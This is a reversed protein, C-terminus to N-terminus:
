KNTENEDKNKVENEQKKCCNKYPMFNSYSGRQYYDLINKNINILDQHSKKKLNFILFMYNWLYHDLKIHEDFGQEHSYYKILDPKVLGCIFCINNKNKIFKNKENKQSIYSDTILGCVMQLVLMLDIIAFFNDIWFRPNQYLTPTIYLGEERLYNIIGNSNKITQDCLTFFCDSFKLCDWTPLHYPIYLYVFIIFYYAILYFLMLTLLLHKKPLWFSKIIYMLTDSHMIIEVLLFILFRYNQSVLAILCDALMLLHYLLKGDRIINFIFSFFKPLFPINERMIDYDDFGYIEGDYEPYYYLYDDQYQNYTRYYENKESESLEYYLYNPLKMLLYSLLILVAFISEILSTYFFIKRTTNINERKYLFGYDFKFNDSYEEVVEYDDNTRYLSAFLLINLLIGIIMFVDVYFQYHNFFLDLFPMKRFLDLRRKSHVLQYHYYDVNKFLTEIKASTSSGVLKSYFEEKMEDTLCKCIPSLTVYFKTISNNILIEINPTYDFYFGYAYDFSNELYFDEQANKTLCNGCKICLERFCRYLSVGYDRTSDFINNPKRHYKKKKLDKNKSEIQNLIDSDNPRTLNQLFINILIYTYTGIEFIIFKDNNNDSSNIIDLENDMRSLMDEDFIPNEYSFHSDKEIIIEKYTEILTYALVDFDIERHISELLYDDQKLGLTLVRILVVLKYKLFSLKKRSLGINKCEDILIDPCEDKDKDKDFRDYCEKLGFLGSDNNDKRKRYSINKLIHRAFSLLGTKEIICKQNELSPGNCCKTLCDIIKIILKYYKNIYILHKTDKTFNVLINSLICIFNHSKSNNYQERLYNKMECTNNASLKTLFDIILEYSDFDNEFLNSSYNLIQGTQYKENLKGINEPNQKLTKNIEDNLSDLISKVLSFISEAGPQEIFFNLFESSNVDDLQDLYSNFFKIYLLYEYDNPNIKVDNFQNITLDIFNLDQFYMKNYPTIRFENTGNLRNNKEKITEDKIDDNNNVNNNISNNKINNNINNNKINNDISNNKINNDISNSISNNISNNISNYINNNIINNINYLSIENDIFDDKNKNYRMLHINTWYFFYLENKYNLYDKAYNDKLIDVYSKFFQVSNEKIDDNKINNSDIEKFYKNLYRVYDMREINIENKVYNQFNILSKDYNIKAKIKNWIFSFSEPNYEDNILLKNLLNKRTILSKILKPVSLKLNSHKMKNNLVSLLEAKNGLKKKIEEIESENKKTLFNKEKKDKELKILINFYLQNYLNIITSFTEDENIHLSSLIIHLKPISIGIFENFYRLNINNKNKNCYILDDDLQIKENFRILTETLNKTYRKNIQFDNKYLDSHNYLLNTVIIFIQSLKMYKWVTDQNILNIMDLFVFIIDNLSLISTNKNENCKKKQENTILELIKILSLLDDNTDNNNKIEKVLIHNIVELVPYLLVFYEYNCFSIIIKLSQVYFPIIKKNKDWELYQLLNLSSIVHDLNKIQNFDEQEEFFYVVNLLFYGIFSLIRGSKNTLQLPCLYLNLKEKIIFQHRKNDFIFVVLLKYISILINELSLLEDNFDDKINVIWSIYEFIQNILEIFGLNYLTIQTVTVKERSFESLLYKDEKRNENAIESNFISKKRSLKFVDDNFEQNYNIKGYVNFINNERRWRKEDLLLDILYEFENNLTEFLIFSNSDLRKILSISHMTNVINIFLDKLKVLKNYDEKTDFLVINTLNDYFIKKQSNAKYLIELIKVKLENNDIIQFFKFFIHSITCNYNDEKKEGFERKKHIRYQEMVKDLYNYSNNNEDKKVLSIMLDDYFENETQKEKKKIQSKNLEDIKNFAKNIELYEIYKFFELFIDCIMFYIDDIITKYENNKSISLEMLIQSLEYERLKDLTRQRYKSNEYDLFFKKDEKQSIIILFLEKFLKKKSINEKSKIVTILKKKYKEFVLKSSDTILYLDYNTELKDNKINNLNNIADNKTGLIEKAFSFSIYKEFLLLILSILDISKNIKEEDNKYNYLNRLIYKVCDLIQVLFFPEYNFLTEGKNYEILLKSIYNCIYYLINYDVTRSKLDRVISTHLFTKKKNLNFNKDLCYFLDMKGLFPFSIHFYLYNLLQALSCKLDNTIDYHRLSKNKKTFTRELNIGNLINNDALYNNIVNYFDFIKQLHLKLDKNCLSLHSYFILNLSVLKSLIIASYNNIVDKKNNIIILEKLDFEYEDDNTSTNTLGEYVEEEFNNNALFSKIIPNRETFVKKNNFFKTKKAFITGNKLIFDILIPNKEYNPCLEWNATKLLELDDFYEDYFQYFPKHNYILLCNFLKFLLLVSSFNIKLQVIDIYNYTTIIRKLCHKLFIYKYNKDHQISNRNNNNIQPNNINNNFQNSQYQNYINNNQNYGPINKSNRENISLPCLSILLTGNNKLIHILFKTCKDDRGVFMFFYLLKDVIVNLYSKNLDYIITLIKFIKKSILKKYKTLNLEEQEKDIKFYEELKKEIEYYNLSQFDNFWNTLFIDVLKSVINFHEIAKMFDFKNKQSINVKNNEPFNNIRSELEILIHQIKEYNSYKEFTITNQLQSKESKFYDIINAFSWILQEFFHLEYKDIEDLFNLKFKTLDSISNTFVLFSKKKDNNLRIGLYVNYKKSKIKIYENKNIYINKEKKKDKNEKSQKNDNIENNEENKKKNNDNLLEEYDQIKEIIFVSKFYDKKDIEQNNVLKSIYMNRLPEVMLVKNTFVNILRVYSNDKLKDIIYKPNGEYFAYEGTNYVVEFKFLSLPEIYDNENFPNVILDYSSELNFDEEYFYNLLITNNDYISENTTRTKKTDHRYKNNIENNSKIRNIAENKKNDLEEFSSEVENIINVGSRHSGRYKNFKIYNASSRDIAQIYLYKENNQLCFFDLSNIYQNDELFNTSFNLIRWFNSSRNGAIIIDDDNHLIKKGFDGFSLDSSNIYMKFNNKIKEQTKEDNVINRLSNRKDKVKIFAKYRVDDVKKIAKFLLDKGISIAKSRTKNGKINYKNNNFSAILSKNIKEKRSFFKENDTSIQKEGCAIKLILNIMVKASNEGQYNFAPIFRFITNESLTDTLQIHIQLNESSKKFELFKGSKIHMFQVSDNFNVSKDNSNLIKISYEQNSNIEQKFKIYYNGIQQKDINMYDDILIEKKLRRKLARFKTMSEYECKPLVLFLTNYYNYKLENKDKFNHFFCYENFVGQSYLFERSTLIDSFEEKRVNLENEENSMNLPETLDPIIEAQSKDEKELMFSIISGYTLGIKSPEYLYNM